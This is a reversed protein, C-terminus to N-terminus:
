KIIKLGELRKFHKVNRTVLIMKETKATAGILLDFDPIKEGRKELNVKLAIFEEAIEQNIPLISIGAKNIFNDFQKTRKSPNDSKKIGYMLEMWSAISIYLKHGFVQKVLSINPDNGHLFDIVVDTDLIYKM